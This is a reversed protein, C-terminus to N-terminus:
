NYGLAQKIKPFKIFVEEMMKPAKKYLERYERIAEQIDGRQWHIWALLRQAALSDPNIELAKKIYEIVKDSYSLMFKAKNLYYFFLFEDDIGLKDQLALYSAPLNEWHWIIDTPLLNQQYLLRLVSLAMLAQGEITPHVVDALLRGEEMIGHESSEEFIKPTPIVFVGSLASASLKEYFKNESSPGRSRLPDFDNALKYNKNAQAYDSLYEYCQGLRYYSMAYENDYKLCEEFVRSAEKYQAKALLAEARSNLQEWYRLQEATINKGHTSARPPYDKFDAIGELFIVPIKYKQGIRIIKIINDELNKQVKQFVESGLALQDKSLSTPKKEIEIFDYGESYQSAKSARQKRLTKKRIFFRNISSLLSSKRVWGSFFDHIRDGYSKGFLLENRHQKIVFDNHASYFVVIDPRYGLTQSFVELVFRSDEGLRGFNLVNIRSASKEGLIKEAYLDMWKKITSKPYLDSGHMTSGGFLFIRIEGPTKRLTLKQEFIRREIFDYAAPPSFVRLTFELLVFFLIVTIASFLFDKKANSM